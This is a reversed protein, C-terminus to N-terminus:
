RKRLINYYRMARQIERNDDSSYRPTEIKYGVIEAIVFTKGPIHGAAKRGHTEMESEVFIVVHRVQRLAEVVELTRGVVTDEKEPATDVM